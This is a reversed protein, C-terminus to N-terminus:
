SLLKFFRELRLTFWHTADLSYVVAPAKGLIRDRGVFGFFRSDASNDRNDGMMFYHNDPVIVETFTDLSSKRPMLMITHSQHAFHETLFLSSERDFKQLATFDKKDMEDYIVPQNNVFLRNKYLAIM